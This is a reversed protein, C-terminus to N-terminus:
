QHFALKLSPRINEEQIRTNPEQTIMVSHHEANTKQRFQKSLDFIEPKLKIEEANATDGVQNTSFELWASKM